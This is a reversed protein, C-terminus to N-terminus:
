SPLLLLPIWSCGAPPNRPLVSGFIAVKEDWLPSKSIRKLDSARLFSRPHFIIKEASQASNGKSSFAMVDLLCRMKPLLTVM